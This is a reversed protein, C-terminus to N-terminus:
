KSLRDPKCFSASPKCLAQKSQYDMVNGLHDFEVQCCSLLSVKLQQRARQVRSKAASLSLHLEEALAQQTIGQYSTRELAYRHPETLTQLLPQICNALEKTALDVKDPTEASLLLVEDTLEESPRLRRYYDTITNRTLRFLWSELREKDKLTPLKQNVKVFVDQLVDEADHETRVRNRIFVKLRQRFDHWIQNSNM